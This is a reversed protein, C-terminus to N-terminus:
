SASLAATAHDLLWRVLGGDLTIWALPLVAHHHVRPPDAFLVMAGILLGMNLRQIRALEAAEDTPENADAHRARLHLFREDTKFLEALTEVGGPEVLRLTVRQAGDALRYRIRTASLATEVDLLSVAVPARPVRLRSEALEDLVTEHPRPAFAAGSRALGAVLQLESLAHEVAAPPPAGDGCHISTAAEWAAREAHHYLRGLQWERTFADAARMDQQEAAGPRLAHASLQLVPGRLMATMGIPAAGASALRFGAYPSGARTAHMEYRLGAADLAARLRREPPM